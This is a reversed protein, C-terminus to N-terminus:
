NITELFAKYRAKFEDKNNLGLYAKLTCVAKIDDKSTYRNVSKVYSKEQRHFSLLRNMSLKKKELFEKRLMKLQRLAHRLQEKREAEAEESPVYEPSKPCSVVEPMPPFLVVM